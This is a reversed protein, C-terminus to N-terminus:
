LEEGGEIVVDNKIFKNVNDILSVVCRILMMSCGLVLSLYGWSTSIKIGAYPVNVQISMM